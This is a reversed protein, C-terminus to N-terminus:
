FGLCMADADPCEVDLAPPLDDPQLAGLVTLYHRAQTIGDVTPDFFHYAGRRVGAARAGAWNAAFRADTFGTGQAAKMYAFAVGDSHAMAWDIVGNGGSVDVGKQVSADPCQTVAEVSTGIQDDPACAAVLCSLAFALRM